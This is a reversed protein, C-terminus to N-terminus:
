TPAQPDMGGVLWAFWDWSGGLGVGREQIMLPGVSKKSEKQHVVM